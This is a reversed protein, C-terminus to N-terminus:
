HRVYVDPMFVAATDSLKETAKSMVNIIQTEDLRIASAVEDPIARLVGQIPFGLLSVTKLQNALYLLSAELRYDEAREPELHWRIGERLASPMKWAKALAAGIEAYTFGLLEKELGPILRDDGAAVLLIERAKDPLRMYIILAGIRHLLGAVFLRESHLVSAEKALLRAIVGCYLSNLWFVNMNVLCAAINRFGHIVSTTLALDYLADAGVMGVARTITEIRGSLGYYSSNVIKLLRAALAPDQGIAEAVEGITFDERELVTSIRAVAVPPSVLQPAGMVLAEPTEAAFM